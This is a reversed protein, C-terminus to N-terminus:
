LNELDIDLALDNAISDLKEQLDGTDFDSPVSLKGKAEFIPEGSYPMSSLSTELEEINIAHQSFAKAIEQVIGRQDPGVASFLMTIDASSTDTQTLRECRVIIGQKELAQICSELEGSSGEPMAIQVVGVFKGSLHALRSELWSAGCAKMASALTDVIGPKDDCTVSLIYHSQM